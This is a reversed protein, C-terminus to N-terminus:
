DHGKATPQYWQIDVVFYQWGHPKLERAMYDAQQKAQAETMTTGFNDWSNWGMPPTPAWSRFDPAPAAMLPAALLMACPIM